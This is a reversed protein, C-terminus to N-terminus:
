GQSAPARRTAKAGPVIGQTNQGHFEYQRFDMRCHELKFLQWIHTAQFKDAVSRQMIITLKKSVQLNDLGGNGQLESFPEL